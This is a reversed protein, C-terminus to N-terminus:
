PQAARAALPAVVLTSGALRVVTVAAGRELAAGDASRAPGTYRQNQILLAVEGVGGAPIATIVDGSAGEFASAALASSGRAGRLVKWAALGAAYATILGGAAALLVSATEGVGFGYRGILGYAGISAFLIALTLPSFLSFSYDGGHEAGHDAADGGDVGDGVGTLASFIVFGAGGLALILYVAGLM